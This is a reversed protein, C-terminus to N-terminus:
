PYVASQPQGGQTWSVKVQKGQAKAKVAKLDADSDVTAVDVALGEQLDNQAGIAKLRVRRVGGASEGWAVACNRTVSMSLIAGGPNPYGIVQVATGVSKGKMDRMYLSPMATPKARTYFAICRAKAGQAAALKNGVELTVLGQDTRYKNSCVNVGGGGVTYVTVGGTKKFVKGHQRAIAKACFTKKKKADATGAFVAGVAALAVLIRV